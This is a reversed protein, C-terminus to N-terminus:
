RPEIAMVSTRGATRTRPKGKYPQVASKEPGTTETRSPSVMSTEVVVAGFTDAEVADVSRLLALGVALSGLM